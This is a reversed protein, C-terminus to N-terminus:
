LVDVLPGVNVVVLEESVTVLSAQLGLHDVLEFLDSTLQPVSVSGREIGMWQRLICVHFVVARNEALDVKATAAGLGLGKLLVTSEALVHDLFAPSLEVVVEEDTVDGTTATSEVSAQEIPLVQHLELVLLHAPPHLGDDSQVEVLAGDVGFHHDIVELVEAKVGPQRVAREAVTVGLTTAVAQQPLNLGVEVRGVLLDATVDLVQGYVSAAVSVLM